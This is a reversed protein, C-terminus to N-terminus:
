LLDDRVRRVASRMNEPSSRVSDPIACVSGSWPVAVSVYTGGLQSGWNTNTSPGGNRWSPSPALINITWPPGYTSLFHPVGLWQVSGNIFNIGFMPVRCWSPTLYDNVFKSIFGAGVDLRATPHVEYTVGDKGFTCVEHIYPERGDM